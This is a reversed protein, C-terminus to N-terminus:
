RGLNSIIVYRQSWLVQDWSCAEGCACCQGHYNTVPEGCCSSVLDTLILQHYFEGSDCADCIATFLADTASTNTTAMGFYQM